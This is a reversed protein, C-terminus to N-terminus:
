IDTRTHRPDLPKCVALTNRKDRPHPRIELGVFLLGLPQLLHLVILDLHVDDLMGSKAVPVMPQTVTSNGVNVDNIHRAAFAAVQEGRGLKFQRLEVGILM